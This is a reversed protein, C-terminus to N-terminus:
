SSKSARSVREHDRASSTTLTRRIRFPWTMMAWVIAILVGEWLIYAPWPGLVDLLSPGAPAHRLFGYNTGIVINVLLALAAWAVTAVYAVAFDRWQPRYGLGCVFVLPALFVAIHLTWYLVFEVAPVNFYTLNPTLLSQLNLTLGWYYSIMIAWRARRILAVATILRLADSFQLPLSEEINWNAPLMGWGMWALSTVLLVWGARQTFRMESATGRIRRAGWVVVVSLAVTLVLMALHAGGFPEMRQVAAIEPAM